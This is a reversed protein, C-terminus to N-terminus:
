SRGKRRARRKFALGNLKREVVELEVRVRVSPQRMRWVEGVFAAAGGRFPMDTDLAWTLYDRVPEIAADLTAPQDIPFACEVAELLKILSDVHSLACEATSLLEAHDLEVLPVGARIREAAWYAEDVRWQGLSFALHPFRDAPRPRASAAPDTPLATM